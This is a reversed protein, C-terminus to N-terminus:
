LNGVESWRRVRGDRRTSTYINSSEALDYALSYQDVFFARTDLTVVLDKVAANTSYQGVSDIAKVFFRWTGAPVDRTTVRLSDVRDLLTADAWTDTIEGWRM